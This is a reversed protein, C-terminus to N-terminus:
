PPCAGDGTMGQVMTEIVARYGPHRAAYRLLADRDETRRQRAVANLLGPAAIPVADLMRALHTAAAEDRIRTDFGKGDALADEDFFVTHKDRTLVLALEKAFRSDEQAHSLFIRM